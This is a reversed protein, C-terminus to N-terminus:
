AVVASTESLRHKRKLLLATLLSIILGVPVIELYTYLVVVLPNHDYADRMGEMDTVQKQLAAPSLGSAKVQQIHAATYKDMFDPIFVYFEVLWFAVYITSAILTIGLALKLAKAFGIVGENYKDRFNRVGVYILSLAIVMSAYGLLMGQKIDHGQNAWFLSLAMLTGVIIGSISGFVLINRKM